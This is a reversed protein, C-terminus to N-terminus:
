VKGLKGMLSPKFSLAIVGTTSTLEFWSKNTWSFSTRWKDLKLSSTRSAGNFSNLKRKCPSKMGTETLPTLEYSISCTSPWLTKRTRKGSTRPLWLIVISCSRATLAHLSSKSYGLTVQRSTRECRPKNFTPAISPKATSSLSTLPSKSNGLSATAWRTLFWCDVQRKLSNPQPVFKLTLFNFGRIFASAKCM